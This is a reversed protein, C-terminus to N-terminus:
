LCPPPLSLRVLGSPRFTLGPSLAGPVWDVAPSRQSFSIHSAEPLTGGFREVGLFWNLFVVIEDDDASAPRQNSVPRVSVFDSFAPFQLHVSPSGRGTLERGVTCYGPLFYQLSSLLRSTIMIFSTETLQSFSCDLIDRLCFLSQVAAGGSRAKQSWPFGREVSSPVYSDTSKLDM